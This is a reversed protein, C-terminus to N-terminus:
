QGEGWLMDTELVKKKKKLYVILMANEAQEASGSSSNADTINLHVAAKRQCRTGLWM